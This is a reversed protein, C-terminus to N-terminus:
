IIWDPWNQDKTSVHKPTIPWQIQLAKDNWRIGSSSEPNFERGMMYLVSTNDEVTIFGHGFGSPIYVTKGDGETLEIGEHQLYTSSTKRLDIIVDFM